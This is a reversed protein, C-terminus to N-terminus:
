KSVIPTYGSAGAKEFAAMAEDISLLPTTKVCRATGSGGVAMALAAVSVNDPMELLVVVDSDGFALWIGLLKGGLKKVSKRVAETRNQPNKILSALAETSYSVQILYSSM